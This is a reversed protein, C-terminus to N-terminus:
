CLMQIEVCIETFARVRQYTKRCLVIDRPSEPFSDPRRGSSTESGMLVCARALVMGRGLVGSDLGVGVLGGDDASEDGSEEGGVDRPLLGLMMVVVVM